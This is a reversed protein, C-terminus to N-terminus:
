VTGHAQPGIVAIKYNIEQLKLPMKEKSSYQCAKAKNKTELINKFFVVRCSCLLLSLCKIFSREELAQCKLNPQTVFTKSLIWFWDTEVNYLRCFFCFTARNTNKTGSHVTRWNQSIKHETTISRYKLKPIQIPQFQPNLSIETEASIPTETQWYYVSIVADFQWM